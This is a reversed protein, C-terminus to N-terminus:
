PLYNEYAYFTSYVAQYKEIDKALVLIYNRDGKEAYTVLCQGAEDTYGTKGSTIVVGEVETGYMRSFMTSALPIGEPHIETPSTTYLYTSLIERCLPDKMAERMIMAMEECTTYHEKDYLGSSNTFHTNKLGMEEAKENMLKVFEEESGSIYECLGVAGDAGSPLILAYLMDKVTVEEDVEFGARSANAEVLPHLLEYTMTFTDSMQSEDLHEAAVLLTMVKTMSAPYMKVLSNRRALVECTDADILISNYATVYDANMEKTRNTKFPRPYKEGSIDPLTESFSPLVENEDTSTETESHTVVVEAAPALTNETEPPFAFRLAVGTGVAAFIILTAPVLLLARNKKKKVNNERM